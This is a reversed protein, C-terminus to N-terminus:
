NIDEQWEQYDNQLTIEFAKLGNEYANLIDSVSTFEDITLKKSSKIISLSDSYKNIFSLYRTFVGYHFGDIKTLNTEFPNISISYIKKSGRIYLESRLERPNVLFNSRASFNISKKLAISVDGTYFVTKGDEVYPILLGKLQKFDLGKFEKNIFDLAVKRWSNSYPTYRNIKRNLQYLKWEVTHTSNKVGKAREKLYLASIIASMGTGVLKNVRLNNQEISKFLEISIISSYIPLHFIIDADMKRIEEKLHIGEESEEAITLNDSLPNKKSSDIGVTEVAM